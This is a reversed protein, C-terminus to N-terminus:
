FGGETTGSGEETTTAGSGSGEETTGSGSGEETTTGAGSGEETPEVVRNDDQVDDAPRPAEGTEQYELIEGPRNVPGNRIGECARCQSQGSVGCLVCEVCWLSREGVTDSSFKKTVCNAADTEELDVRVTSDADVHFRYEVSPACDASAFPSEASPECVTCIASFANNGDSVLSQKTCQPATSTEPELPTETVTEEQALVAAAVFLLLLVSLLHRVTRQM